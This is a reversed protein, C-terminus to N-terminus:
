KTVVTSELIQLYKVQNPNVKVFNENLLYNGINNLSDLKSLNIELIKNEKSLKELRKECDKILYIKQTLAGIQFIYFISLVLLFILNIAWFMTLIGRKKFIINAGPHYLSLTYNM